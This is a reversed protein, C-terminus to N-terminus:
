AGRLTATPLEGFLRRYDAAFNGPRHFGLRRAVEAVRGYGPDSERLARRAANLKLAKLYDKPSLGTVELFAYHLTRESVNTLECLQLIRLNEDPHARMFEEAECVVRRRQPHTTRLPDVIRGAALIRVLDSVLEIPDILPQAPTQAGPLPGPASLGVAQVCSALAVTAAPDVAVPREPCILDEIEVGILSRAVRQLLDRGVILSTLRYDDSTRHDTETEPGLVNIMGPRLSRGRWVAGANAPVVPSFTFTEPPRAGRCRFTRNVEVDFLQVDAFDAFWLRGQFAGAGLQDFRQDWRHFAHCLEDFDRTDLRRALCARGPGSAPDDRPQIM